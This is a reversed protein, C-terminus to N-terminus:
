RGWHFTGAFVPGYHTMDYATSVAAGGAAALGRPDGSDIGLAKYGALLGFSPKVHYEFAVLGSWTVDSQGAGIDGRTLLTLKPTLSPRWTVGVIADVNTKSIEVERLDVDAASVTVNPSFTYTRLGGILAFDRTLWAAGGTEFILSDLELRGDVTRSRQGILEYSADTGLRVFGVDAFAGWRGKRVEGDFTFTASLNKVATGFDMFVPVNRPGVTMAGDLESAWLYLPAISVEWGDHQAAVPQADVPAAVGTALAIALAAVAWRTSSTM